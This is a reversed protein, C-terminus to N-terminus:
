DLPPRRRGVGTAQEFAHALQLVDFDANRRGVIQLGVPLGEASFGAPVSIAPLGTLSILACSMMWDLYTEMPVGAIERVWPEEVAFPQVQSVPLCLFEFDRLFDDVRDALAARAQEAGAIEAPELALGKEVNWVVTDKMLARSTALLGGFGDAFMRARLVQFVQNAGAFDPQAAEVDCGMDEFVPRASDCVDTVAAEVPLMGLDPSWAIRSGSFDRTLPAGFDVPQLSCSLDDRADPGAMVSLLYAVDGVSRALGGTVALRLGAPANEAVRGASPRFGVVNNFSGPNRLSGGLDSGDAFPLLGAALAAAAGGSSGGPTKSRDYPNRTAGFVENFTQSGAGFEPVNTKGIVIAGAARLREVFLADSDPVFDALIRSGMTTRLGKTLATDKVAHPIGHLPGPAAGAALAEDCRRAELLLDARPRLTPIANLLPDIAEIRDLTAAMLEVASLERRALRRALERGDLYALEAATV